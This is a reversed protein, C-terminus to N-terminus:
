TAQGKAAARRKRAAANAKLRKEDATRHTHYEPNESYDRTLYAVINSLAAQAQALSVGMRRYNNEVKGLLSNVGRHLVGRCKGTAHDHDLVAERATITYGSLACRGGQKALWEARLEAAQKVTLRM